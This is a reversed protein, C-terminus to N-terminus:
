PQGRVRAPRELYTEDPRAFGFRAYLDHADATHLMWRFDAGPGDDIMAAVLATGLGRGRHAPDVFVDALYGLALGDSVARAFGVMSGGPEAYAGVVRWAGTIQGDVTDRDRWRGWYAATSLFAWVLDRDIRGPDDDLEYGPVQRLVTV